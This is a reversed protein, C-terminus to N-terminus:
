IKVLELTTSKGQDDMIVFIYSGAPASSNWTWSEQFSNNEIQRGYMDFVTVTANVGPAQFTVTGSFPNASPTVTLGQVGQNGEEIGETLDVQYIKDAEIDSIWLYGNPDLAMGRANPIMSIDIYDVMTNSTNYCKVAISTNESAVWVLSDATNMAIDCTNNFGSFYTFEKRTTIGPLTYYYTRNQTRSGLFVYNGNASLGTM